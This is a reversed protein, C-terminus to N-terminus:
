GSLLSRTNVVLRILLRLIAMMLRVLRRRAFRSIVRKLRHRVVRCASVTSWIMALILRGNVSWILLMRCLVVTLRANFRVSRRLTRLVVPSRACLCILRLLIMRAIRLSWSLIRILLMRRLRRRLMLM